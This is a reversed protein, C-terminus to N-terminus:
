STKQWVNGRKKEEEITGGGEKEKIGVKNDRKEVSSERRGVSNERRCGVKQKGAGRKVRECFVYGKRMRRGVWEQMGVSNEKRGVDRREGRKGRGGFM